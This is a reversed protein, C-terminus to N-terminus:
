TGYYSERRWGGEKYLHISIGVIKQSFSADYVTDSLFEDCESPKLLQAMM